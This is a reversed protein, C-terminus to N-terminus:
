SMGAIIAMQNDIDEPDVGDISLGNWTDNDKPSLSLYYEAAAKLNRKRRRSVASNQSGKKAEEQTFKHGCPILNQENAM